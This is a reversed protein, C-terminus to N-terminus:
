LGEEAAPDMSTQHSTVPSILVALVTLLGLLCCLSEQYSPAVFRLM